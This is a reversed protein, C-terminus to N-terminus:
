QSFSIRRRLVATRCAVDEGGVSRGLPRAFRRSRVLWALAMTTQASILNHASM